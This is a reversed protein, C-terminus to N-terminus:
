SPKQVDAPEAPFRVLLPIDGFHVVDGEKLSRPATIRERNVFTGNRSALDEVTVESLGVRIVAHRRSVETGDLHVPVEPVRGVVHEGSPLAFNLDKGELNGELYVRPKSAADPPLAQTAEGVDTTRPTSPASPPASANEMQQAPLASKAAPPSVPAPPVQAKESASAAAREAAPPPGPKPPAAAAPKAAADMPRTAPPTPPSPKVPAAAAPREPPAPPQATEAPKKVEPPVPVAPKAAAHAVPQPPPTPAKAEAPAQDASKAPPAVHPAVAPGPAAPAAPKVEKPAAPAPPKGGPAAHAAAKAPPAEEHPKVAEIRATAPPRAGERAHEFSALEEPSWELRTKWDMPLSPDSRALAALPAVGSTEIPGEDTRVRFRRTGGLIFEDGDKLIRPEAIKEGNIFTGNQSHLDTLVIQVGTCELRAHIKSVLQSDSVVNNSAARGITVSGRPLTFRNGADSGDLIELFAAKIGHREVRPAEGTKRVFILETYRGLAVVDLHRLRERRTLRVGNLFTGNSSGADEIWFDKGDFSIKAHKRSVGEM